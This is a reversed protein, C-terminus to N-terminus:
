RRADGRFLRNEKKPERRLFPSGENNKSVQVSADKGRPIITATAEKGSKEEIVGIKPPSGRDNTTPPPSHCALSEGRRVVGLRRQPRCCPCRTHARCISPSQARFPRKRRYPIFSYLRKLHPTYISIHTCVGRAPEKRASNIQCCDERRKDRACEKVRFTEYEGDREYM